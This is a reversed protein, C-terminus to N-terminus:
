WQCIGRKECRTRFRICLWCRCYACPSSQSLSIILPAYQSAKFLQDNNVIDAARNQKVNVQGKALNSNASAIVSAVEPLGIGYNNLATPNLEVRVAPLSSGSVFVQGVGSIQSLKQQLISSATDYMQGTTWRDSTLAMVMIPADAPNIKRYTPNTPLNPPLQSQAADIPLRCMGRPVM